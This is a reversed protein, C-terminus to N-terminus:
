IKLKKIVLDTIEIESKSWFLRPDNKDFIMLYNEDKAIIAINKNISELIPDFLVKQKSSIEQQSKAIFENHEQITKSLEDQKKKLSDENLMGKKSEFVSVEKKILNEKEAIQKKIQEVFNNLDQQAKQGIPISSVTKQLDFTAFKELALCFQSIILLIFPIIRKM